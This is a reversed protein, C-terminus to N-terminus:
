GNTEVWSLLPETCPIISDIEGYKNITVCIENRFKVLFGKKDRYTKGNRITDIVEKSSSVLINEIM